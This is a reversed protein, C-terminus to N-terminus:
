QEIVGKILANGISGWGSSGGATLNGWKADGAGVKRDSPWSRGGRLMQGRSAEAPPKFPEHTRRVPM